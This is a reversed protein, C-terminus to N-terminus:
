RFSISGKIAAPFSLPLDPSPSFSTSSILSPVRRATITPARSYSPLSFLAAEDDCAEYGENQRSPLLESMGSSRREGTFGSGSPKGPAGMAALEADKTEAKLASLATAGSSRREGAFGSVSPKGPAGCQRVRAALPFPVCKRM